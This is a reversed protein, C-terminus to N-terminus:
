KSICDPSLNYLIAGPTGEGCGLAVEGTIRSLSPAMDFKDPRGAIQGLRADARVMQVSCASCFVLAAAFQAINGM